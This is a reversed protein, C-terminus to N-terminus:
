APSGGEAADSRAGPAVTDSGAERASQRWKEGGPGPAFEEAETLLAPLPVGLAKALQRLGGWWEDFEGSEIRELEAKSMECSSALEDRGLGQRERIITIAQGMGKFAAAEEADRPSRRQQPTM